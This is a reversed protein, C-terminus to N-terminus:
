RRTHGHRWYAAVAMLLAMLMLGYESLTPISPLGVLQVNNLSTNARVLRASPALTILAPQGTSSNLQLPQSVTGQLTLTGSVTINAGAPLVFNQGTTSVFSLNNFMTNGSFTLPGPACGDTFIVTGANANFSGANTWNGNVTLTGTGGNLTGTPNINVNGTNGAQGDGVNFTGQVILGNCGLNM